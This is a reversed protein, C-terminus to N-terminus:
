EFEYSPKIRQAIKQKYRQLFPQYGYKPLEQKKMGYIPQKKLWDKIVAPHSIWECRYVTNDKMEDAIAKKARSFM